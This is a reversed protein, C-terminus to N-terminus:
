VEVTILNLLSDGKRFVCSHLWESSSHTEKFYYAFHLMTEEPSFAGNKMINELAIGNLILSCYIDMDNYYHHIYSNYILESGIVTFWM